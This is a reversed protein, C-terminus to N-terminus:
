IRFANSLSINGFRSKKTKHDVVLCCHPPYQSLQEMICGDYTAYEVQRLGNPPLNSLKSQLGSIVHLLIGMRENPIYTFMKKYTVCDLM